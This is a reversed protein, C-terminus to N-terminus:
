LVAGQGNNGKSATKSPQIRTRHFRQILRTLEHASDLSALINRHANRLLNCPLVIPDVGILQTFTRLLIALRNVTLMQLSYSFALKDVLTALSSNLRRQKTCPRKATYATCIQWATVNVAISIAISFRENGPQTKCNLLIAHSINELGLVDDDRAAAAEDAAVEHVMHHPLVGIHVHGHQVLQGVRAVALVDRAQGGVAHLEHDAVDAVGLQQLTNDGAVVGDDVVGRLGVVVVGDCVRLGEQAGVDLASEAQELGNALVADAVM